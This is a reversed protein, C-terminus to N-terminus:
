VTLLITCYNFILDDYVVALLHFKIDIVFSIWSIAIFWCHCFSIISNLNMLFTEFFWFISILFTNSDSLFFLLRIIHSNIQLSRNSRIGSWVYENSALVFVDVYINRRQERLKEWEKWKKKKADKWDNM